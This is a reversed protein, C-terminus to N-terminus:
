LSNIMFEVTVKIQEESLDARGAKPPMAGLGNIVSQILADNGKELRTAWEEAVLKPAGAAGTIHCASCVNDYIMNGDLSGDFAVKVEEEAVPASTMPDGTNIKAVPALASSIKSRDMKADNNVLDKHVKYGYVALIVTLLVLFGLLWSFNRFFISDQDKM